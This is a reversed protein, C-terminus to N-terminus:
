VLQKLQSIHAEMTQKTGIAKALEDKARLMDQNYNKSAESFADRLEIVQAGV